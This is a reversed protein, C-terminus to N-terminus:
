NVVLIKTAMKESGDKNSCFVLYVGTKAREGKFNKADWTATGGNAKTQYILQGSVDTIKIEADQALNKIAITGTFTERVPNPFAYVDGFSDGAETADGRYSIIGQDTGFFVEGSENDVTICLVNNSLLPSNEKTFNRVVRFGDPSLLFAGANQTAIWKRNGGDVFIDQIVNGGLLIENFGDAATVVPQSADFGCNNALVCSPSYFIAYGDNTGIWILGDKDEVIDNVIAAPLKGSGTSTNLLRYSTVNQYNSTKCVLIGKDRLPLWIRDDSDITIGMVIDTNSIGPVDISTWEGTPKRVALNRNSASLSVWLAGKSDFAVGSAMVQNYTGNLPLAGSTNTEDFKQVAIRNKIEIIGGGYTSAFYHSPDAPDVALGLYDSIGAAVSSSAVNVFSWKMNFYEGVGDINYTKAWNSAPTGSVTILHGDKAQMRFVSTSFPGVPTFPDRNNFNYVRILGYNRDAVWTDGNNDIAANGCLDIFADTLDAHITGDNNKVLLRGHSLSDYRYTFALKGGTSEISQLSRYYGPTYITWSTGNFVYTTDQDPIGQNLLKSFNALINGNHYVVANFVGNPLESFRTWSSFDEILGSGNFRYLGNDAAAFVQQGQVAIDYVPIEVGANTTFRSSYVFEEKLLDIVSIGFGCSLYAKTSDITINQIVKDNVNTNTLISNLNVIGSPKLLDINGNQYGIVLCNAADAYAISSIRVDSLGDIKSFRRIRYFDQRDVMFLGNWTGCYVKGPANAVMVGRNYPLYINWHGTPVQQASSRLVSLLLLIPLYKLM